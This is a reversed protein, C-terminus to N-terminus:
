VTSHREIEKSFSWSLVIRIGVNVALITLERVSPILITKLIDSGIEFDLALLMGRTLSLRITDKYQAQEKIPKRLIKFFSILAIIASLGIILGAAIDIGFTLFNVYPVLLSETVGSILHSQEETGTGGVRGGEQAIAVIVIGNM